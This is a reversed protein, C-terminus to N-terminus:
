AHDVAEKWRASMEADGLLGILRAAGESATAGLLDFGATQETHEAFRMAKLSYDPTSDFCRALDAAEVLSKGSADSM